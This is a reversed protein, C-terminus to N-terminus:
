SHEVPRSASQTAVMLAFYWLSSCRGPIQTFWVRASFACNMGSGQIAGEASNSSKTWLGPVIGWARLSPAGNASFVYKGARALWVSQSTIQMKWNGIEELELYLARKM